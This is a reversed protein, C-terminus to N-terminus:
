SGLGMPPAWIIRNRFFHIMTLGLCVALPWELKPSPKGSPGGAKVDAPGSAHGWLGDSLKRREEENWRQSM